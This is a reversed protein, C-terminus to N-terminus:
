VEITIATLSPAAGEIAGGRVFVKDDVAYGTGRAVQQGGGPYQVTVVGAGVSVVQGVLLPTQPLLSLLEVFPNIM